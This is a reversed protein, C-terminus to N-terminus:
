SAADVANQNLRIVLPCSVRGSVLPATVNGRRGQFPDQRRLNPRSAFPVYVSPFRQPVGTVFPASMSFSLLRPCGMGVATRVAVSILAGDSGTALSTLASGDISGIGLATGWGGVCNNASIINAGITNQADTEADYRLSSSAAAFGATQGRKLQDQECRYLLTPMDICFTMAASATLSMLAALAQNM